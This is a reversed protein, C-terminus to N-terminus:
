RIRSEPVIELMEAIEPPLGLRESEQELQSAAQRSQEVMALATWIGGGLAIAVILTIAIQTAGEIMDFPNM